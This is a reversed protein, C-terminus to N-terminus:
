FDELALQRYDVLSVASQNGKTNHILCHNVFFIVSALTVAIQDRIVGNSKTCKRILEDPIHNM